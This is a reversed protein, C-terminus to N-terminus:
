VWAAFIAGAAIFQVFCYGTNILWLNVPKGEWIVSSISTTASYGLWAWFGTLMGNQVPDMTFGPVLLMYKVFHVMVYSFVLASFAGALYYKWMDKKGKEMDAKTFGMMTIWPKGFIPGYWLTGLVISLVAVAAVALYNIAILPM